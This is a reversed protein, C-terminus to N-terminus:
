LARYCKEETGKVVRLQRGFTWGFTKDNLGRNLKNYSAAYTMNVDAFISWKKKKKKCKGLPEPFTEFYVRDKM